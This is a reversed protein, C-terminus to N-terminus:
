TGHLRFRIQEPVQGFRRHSRTLQYLKTKRAILKATQDGGALERAKCSTQVNKWSFMRILM